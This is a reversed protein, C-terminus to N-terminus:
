KRCKPMCKQELSFTGCIDSEESIVNIVKTDVPPSRLKDFIKQPIRDKEVSKDKRRGLIEKLYGKNLLYNIEKGLAIYDETIHGFDEHYAFWKSKDKSTISKEGKRPWGAKDGLDQM